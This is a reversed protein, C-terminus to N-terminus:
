CDPLQNKKFKSDQQFSEELSCITTECPELETKASVTKEDGKVREELTSYEGYGCSAVPPM